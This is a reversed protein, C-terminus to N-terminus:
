HLWIDLILALLFVVSMRRTHLFAYSSFWLPWVSEPYDPPKLRPREANYVRIVRYLLPLNALSLLLPWGLIGSVVCLLILLYQLLLMAMVWKRARDEGLLVPLSRIGKARDADCKDIHKGFLVSTPGLAYAISILVVAWSWSGSVVFFTGGVMLPGWVLLVAPEGLGILKLPWSYFLVFFAGALMLEFTLGGRLVILSGGALLALCATVLLYRWLQAKSVLGAELIHTGYQNRYYNGKDVGRLSDTLDNLLNNTAHALLLGLLSLIFLLSDFTGARLALLGGIASSSFTMILVSARVAILWRTMIGLSAWRQQDVRPVGMLAQRWLGNGDSLTASTEIAMEAGPPSQNSLEDDNASNM